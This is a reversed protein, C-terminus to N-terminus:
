PASGTQRRASRPSIAAPPALVAARWERMFLIAVLVGGFAGMTTLAVELWPPMLHLWSAAAVGYFGPVGVYLFNYPGSFRGLRRLHKLIPERSSQWLNIRVACAALLCYTAGWFFWPAAEHRGTAGNLPITVLVLMADVTDWLTPLRKRLMGLHSYTVWASLTVLTNGLIQLWTRLTEMTLPWLTMRAHVASFLDALVLGVLVSVLTLYLSSFQRAVRAELNEEMEGAGQRWVEADGRRAGDAVPL